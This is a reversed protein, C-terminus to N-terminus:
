AKLGLFPSDKRILELEQAVLVLELPKIEPDYEYRGIIGSVAVRDGRKLYDAAVPALNQPCCVLIYGAIYPGLMIGLKFMTQRLGDYIKLEPETLVVGSLVCLNFM